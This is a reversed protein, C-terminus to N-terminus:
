PALRRSVDQWMGHRVIAIPEEFPRRLLGEIQRDSPLDLQELGGVTVPERDQEFARGTATLCAEYAEHGPTQLSGQDGHGTVIVERGIVEGSTKQHAATLGDPLVPGQSCCGPGPGDAVQVFYDFCTLVRDYGDVRERSSRRM